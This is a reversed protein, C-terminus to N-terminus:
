RPMELCSFPTCNSTGRGGFLIFPMRRQSLAKGRQWIAAIQDTRNWNKCGAAASDRAITPIL